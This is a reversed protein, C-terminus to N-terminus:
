LEIDNNGSGNSFSAPDKSRDRTLVPNRVLTYALHWRARARKKQLDNSRDGSQLMPNYREAASSAPELDRLSSVGTIFLPSTYQNFFNLTSLYCRFAQDVKAMSMPLVCLDVRCTAMATYGFAYLFRMVVTFIGTFIGYFAMILMMMSFYRPEKIMRGKSLREEFLYGDLFYFKLVLVAIFGIVSGINQYILQGVVKALNPDLIVVFILSYVM